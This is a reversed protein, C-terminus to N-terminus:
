KKIKLSNNNKKKNIGKVIKKIVFGSGQGCLSAAIYFFSYIFIDFNWVLICTFLYFIGILLSFIYSFDEKSYAFLFSIIFNVLPFIIILLILLVESKNSLLYYTFPMIVFLILSFLLYPIKELHKKM